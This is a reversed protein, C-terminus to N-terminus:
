VIYRENNKPLKLRIKQEVYIIFHTFYLDQAM